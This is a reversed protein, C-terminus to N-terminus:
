TIFSFVLIGPHCADSHLRHRGSRLTCADPLGVKPLPDCRIFGQQERMDAVRNRLQLVDHKTVSYGQPQVWLQGGLAAPAPLFRGEKPKLARMHIVQQEDLRDGPALVV